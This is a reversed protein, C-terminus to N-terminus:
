NIGVRKFIHGINKTFNDLKFCKEIEETSLIDKIEKSGLIIEKLEKKNNRATMANEQVIKYTEERTLGKKVLELLLTQSFILGYSRNINELMRDPYVKMNEVLDAFLHLIYDLLITSDPIIVREVSSHSIDREHWLPINEMAAIANSRLLRALGSIRECIIPNKKHPMASSGKQGRSFSEEVEGVETRHLHRIEVAFKELSSATIAIASLFEAHRDRQIIQNSANAAILGLEECVMIEIEPDIFAYTGVAGSIKGVSIIKVANKIRELNRNIEEYWIALKLGFTIPESFVGHTRGMMITDKFELARRKLINSINELRTTLKEGAQKMMLALSTDLMDSSTMGLHIFRSDEGVYEAVSTLFAIVDHKVEKEIENIKDIDFSSKKEINEMAEKPITGLKTHARCVALEVKLWTDFKNKEEWIKGM